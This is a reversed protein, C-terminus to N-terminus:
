AGSPECVLVNEENHSFACASELLEQLRRRARHIRIKVTAESTGLLEAIERVKLNRDEYLVLATRQDEPLLDLYRRVCASMERREVEGETDAGRSTGCTNTTGEAESALGLAVPSRKRRRLHDLAINTATTHLWAMVAGPERLGQRQYLRLLAEQVVDEAEQPDKLMPMLRRELGRQQIQTIVPAGKQRAVQFVFM